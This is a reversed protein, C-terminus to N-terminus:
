NGLDVVGTKNTQQISEYDQFGRMKELVENSLTLDDQDMASWVAGVVPETALTVV